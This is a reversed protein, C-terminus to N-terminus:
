IFSYNNAVRLGASGYFWYEIDNASFFIINPKLENVETSM